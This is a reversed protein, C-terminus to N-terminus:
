ACAAAAREISTPIPLLSRQHNAYRAIQALSFARMDTDERCAERYWAVSLRVADATTLRPAWGLVARAKSSDLTLHGAEHPDQARKGFTILPAGEGWTAVVRRALTEVDIFDEASPGFNWAQAFRHGGEDMLRAGLLLYGALPELVHQWPRISAPNRITVPRAALTARVIDPLLRDRSVDGGGIVNGARATAIQCGSPASFYSRRFAQAVLETCGKSASYPDAGGLADTERYPWHWERNDYCKDSTVVVVARASAMRRVADLVIATGTVNTAFTEVPVEYSPRVLAQAALHFVIEPAIGSCGKAFASESRIDAFRSDILEALDVCTGFDPGRADTPLAIGTVEAGLARLWLCLWAGKFGTHGTVLVRKGRYADALAQGLTPSESM